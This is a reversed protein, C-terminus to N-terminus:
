NPKSMLPWVRIKLDKLTRKFTTGVAAPEGTDWNIGEVNDPILEKWNNPLFLPNIFLVTFDTKNSGQRGSFSGDSRQNIGLGSLFWEQNTTEQINKPFCLAGAPTSNTM